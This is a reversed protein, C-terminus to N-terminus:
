SCDVCGADSVKSAVVVETFRAVAADVRGAFAELTRIKEEVDDLAARLREQEACGCCPASCLDSLAITSGAVRVDLCGDGVIAFASGAGAPIGNISAIPTADEEASGDCRCAAALGEGRIADFRIEGGAPSTVRSNVGLRVTVVGDLSAEVGGPGAIRIASVGRLSPRIADCDLAAGALDFAFRGAPRSALGALSGFTVTGTSGAFDGLGALTATTFPRFGARAVTAAAVPLSGSTGAYGLRLGVGNAYVALSLLHFRTPDIAVEPGTPFSLAVVLDDPLSFAGSADVRGCWAAFPYARTLNQHPWPANLVAPTSM